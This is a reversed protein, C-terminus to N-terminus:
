TSGGLDHQAALVFPNAEVRKVGIRMAIFASAIFLAAEIGFVMGYSIANSNTYHKLVDVLV